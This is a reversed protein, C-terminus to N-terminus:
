RTVVLTARYDAPQIPPLSSFPYPALEVLSVTWSDYVFPRTDATHLDYARTTTSTLISVRVQANGATLCLADGPCRSDNEVGDFRLVVPSGTIATSQGFALTVQQREPASPATPRPGTCGAAVLAVILFVRSVM